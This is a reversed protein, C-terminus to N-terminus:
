KSKFYRFLERIIIGEEVGGVGDPFLKKLAASLEKSNCFIGMSSLTEAYDDLVSHEKKSKKNQRNKKKRPSYFIIIDGNNGIGEERIELLKIQLNKDYYPRKTKIHYLPQPFIGEELLQYFRARSLGVLKCADSVSIVPKFNSMKNDNM